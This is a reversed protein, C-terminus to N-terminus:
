DPHIPCGLGTGYSFHEVCLAVYVALRKGGPWLFDPRSTIASYPFRNNPEIKM